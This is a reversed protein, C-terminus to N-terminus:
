ALRYTAMESDRRRDRIREYDAVASAFDGLYEHIAARLSGGLLVISGAVNQEGLVENLVALAGKM